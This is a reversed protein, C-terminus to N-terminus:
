CAKEGRLHLFRELLLYLLRLALHHFLRLAQNVRFAWPHAVCLLVNFLAVPVVIVFAVLLWNHIFLGFFTSCRVIVANQVILLYDLSLGVSWFWYLDVVPWWHHHLNLSRRRDSRVHVQLPGEVRSWGAHIVEWVQLSRYEFPLSNIWRIEQISVFVLYNIHRCVWKRIAGRAIARYHRMLLADRGISALMIVITVLGSIWILEHSNRVKMCEIFTYGISHLKPLLDHTDTM